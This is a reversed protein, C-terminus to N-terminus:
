KNCLYKVEYKSKITVILIQTLTDMMYLMYIQYIHTRKNVNMFLKMMDHTNVYYYLNLSVSM